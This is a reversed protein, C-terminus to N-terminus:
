VLQLENAFCGSMQRVIFGEPIWMHKLPRDWVVWVIGNRIRQVSGIGHKPHRVQDKVQFDFRVRQGRIYVTREKRAAVDAVMLIPIFSQLTKRPFM